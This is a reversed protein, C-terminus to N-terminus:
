DTHFAPRSAGNGKESSSVSVFLGLLFSQPVGHGALPAQVQGLSGTQRKWGRTGGEYSLPTNSIIELNVKIKLIMTISSLTLGEGLLTALPYCLWAQFEAQGSAM